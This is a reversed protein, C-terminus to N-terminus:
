YKAYAIYMSIFVYVDWGIYKVLYIGNSMPFKLFLEPRILNRDFTIIHNQQLVVLM